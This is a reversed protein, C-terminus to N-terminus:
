EKILRSLGATIAVLVLPALFVLAGADLGKEVAWDGYLFLVFAAVLSVLALAAVIANKM